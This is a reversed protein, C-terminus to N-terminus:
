KCRVPVRAWKSSPWPNVIPLMRHRKPAGGCPSRAAKILLIRTVFLPHAAVEPALGRPHGRSQREGLIQEGSIVAGEVLGRWELHPRRQDAREGIEHQREVEHGVHQRQEAKGVIGGHQEGRQAHHSAVQPRLM